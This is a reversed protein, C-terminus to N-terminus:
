KGINIKAIQSGKAAKSPFFNGNPFYLTPFSVFVIMPEEAKKTLANETYTNRKLRKFMDTKIVYAKIIDITAVIVSASLLFPKSLM